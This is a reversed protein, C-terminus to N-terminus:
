VAEKMVLLYDYVDKELTKVEEIKRFIKQLHKTIYDYNNQAKVKWFLSLLNSYASVLSLIIEQKEPNEEYFTMKALAYYFVKLETFYNIIEDVKKAVGELDHVVMWQLEDLNEISNHRNDNITEYEIHQWIEFVGANRRKKLIYCSLKRNLIGKTFMCNALLLNDLNIVKEQYKYSNIYQHDVVNAENKILDYGYVLIFHPSNEKGYTELRSELYYCDVGMIIPQGKDICRILKAKNMNCHIKRYGLMKELREGQFIIENQVEFDPKILIFANFLIADRGIGFCSLGALLQHYYCSKFFFENFPKVGDIRNKKM